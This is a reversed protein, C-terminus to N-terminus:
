GTAALILDPAAGPGHECLTYAGKAVLDPSSGELNTCNQRSLAMVSPTSPTEMAVVYAGTVQLPFSPFATPPFFLVHFVVILSVNSAM